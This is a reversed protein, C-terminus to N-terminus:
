KADLKRAVSEAREHEGQRSLNAHVNELKGRANKDGYRLKERESDQRKALKKEKHRDAREWFEDPRGEICGAMGVFVKPSTLQRPMTSNCVPCQQHLNRNEFKVILEHSKGCAECRYEYLPM